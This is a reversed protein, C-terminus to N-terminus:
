DACCGVIQVILDRSRSRTDCEIFVIQQWTGLTLRSKVVPVTFSTKLLASLLHGSGNDDGWTEHHRYNEDRPFLRGLYDKIDAKLGPEYEITTIAGTSGACFINVIGDSIGSEGAINRVADTIDIIDFQGRTRVPISSTKVM